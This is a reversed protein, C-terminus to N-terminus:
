GIEGLYKEINEPGFLTQPRLYEKMKPDDKWKRAYMAIIAKMDQIEYGDDIRAILVRLQSTPDGKPTKLRFNKGSKANLFLLLAEAKEATTQEQTEVLKM